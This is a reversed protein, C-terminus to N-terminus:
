QVVFDTFYINKVQGDSLNENIKDLVEDKLKDKGKLTSIEEFTKSSFTRIIIDRILSKKHDMEPQLKPDSLELDISVKLFRNGSESLLNVIFQAMPYMPGIALHDTSKKSTTKKKETKVDQQSTTTAAAEEHSSGLLLFAAAGGGILIVVLLVIVIILVMNGKPKKEVTVDGDEPKKGAM